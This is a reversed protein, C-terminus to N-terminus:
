AQNTGQFLIAYVAPLHGGREKTQVANECLLFMQLSHHIHHRTPRGWHPTDLPLGLLRGYFEISNATMLGFLNIRL